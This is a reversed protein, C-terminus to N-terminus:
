CKTTIWYFIMWGLVMSKLYIISGEAQSMLFEEHSTCSPTTPDGVIVLEGGVVVSNVIHANLVDFKGRQNATMPTDAKLSDYSQTHSNIFSRAESM